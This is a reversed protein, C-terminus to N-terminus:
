RAGVTMDCKNWRGHLLPNINGVANLARGYPHPIIDQQVDWIPKLNTLHIVGVASRVQGECLLTHTLALEPLLKHLADDNVEDAIKHQKIWGPEVKVQTNQQVWPKITMEFNVMSGRDLMHHWQNIRCDRFDKMHRIRGGGPRVVPVNSRGLVGEAFRIVLATLVDLVHAVQGVCAWEPMNLKPPPLQTETPREDLDIGFAVAIGQLLSRYKQARSEWDPRRKNTRDDWKRTECLLGQFCQFTFELALWTKGLTSAIIWKITPVLSLYLEYVLQVDLKNTQCLKNAVKHTGTGMLLIPGTAFGILQLTRLTLQNIFKSGFGAERLIYHATESSMRLGECLNPVRKICIALTSVWTTIRVVWNAVDEPVEDDDLEEKLAARARRHREQTALTSNQREADARKVAARARTVASELDTCGPLLHQCESKLYDAKAESRAQKSYKEAAKVIKKQISLPISLRGKKKRGM